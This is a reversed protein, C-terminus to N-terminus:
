KQKLYEQYAKEGEALREWNTSAGEIEQFVTPDLDALFEAANQKINVTIIGKASLDPYAESFEYNEVKECFTKLNEIDADFMKAPNIVNRNNRSESARRLRELATYNGKMNKPIIWFITPNELNDREKECIYPVAKTTDRGKLAM